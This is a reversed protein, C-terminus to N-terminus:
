TCCAISLAVREHDLPARKETLESRDQNESSPANNVFSLAPVTRTRVSANPPEQVGMKREEAARAVSPLCWQTTEADADVKYQMIVFVLAPGVM